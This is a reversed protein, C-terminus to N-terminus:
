NHVTHKRPIIKVVKKLEDGQSTIKARTMIQKKKRKREKKVKQPTASTINTRTM